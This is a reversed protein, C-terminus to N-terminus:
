SLLRSVKYIRFSNSVKVDRPHCLCTKSLFVKNPICALILHDPRACDSRSSPLMTTTTPRKPLTTWMSEDDDSQTTQRDTRGDTQWTVTYLPFLPADADVAHVVIGLHGRSWSWQLVQGNHVSEVACIWLGKADFWSAINSYVIESMM